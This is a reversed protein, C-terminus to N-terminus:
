ITPNWVGWIGQWERVQHIVSSLKIIFLSVRRNILTFQSKKCHMCLTAESDPVWVPSDNETNQTKGETFFLIVIGLLNILLFCINEKLLITSELFNINLGGDVKLQNNYDFPFNYEHSFKCHNSIQPDAHIRFHQWVLNSTNKENFLM